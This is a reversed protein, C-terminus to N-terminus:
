DRRKRERPIRGTQEVFQIADPSPRAYYGRDYLWHDFYARLAEDDRACQVFASAAEVAAQEAAIRERVDKALALGSDLETWLSWLAGWFWDGEGANLRELGIHSLESALAGLDGDRAAIRRAIPLVDERDAM